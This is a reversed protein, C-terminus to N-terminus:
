LATREDLLYREGYLCEYEIQFTMLGLEIVIDSAIITDSASGAFHLLTVSDGARITNNGTYPYFSVNTKDLHFNDRKLLSNLDYVNSINHRKGEIVINFSKLCATGIGNNCLLVEIDHGTSMVSELTLHPKVSLKNHKRTLAAQWVAVLLSALAIVIASIAIVDSNSLDFYSNETNTIM